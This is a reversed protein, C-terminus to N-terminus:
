FPWEEFDVELFVSQKLTGESTVIEFVLEGSVSYEDKPKGDTDNSKSWLTRSWKTRIETFMGPALRKLNTTLQFRKLEGKPSQVIEHPCHDDNQTIRWSRSAIVYVADLEPSRRKTNNKLKVELGFSGIHRWDTKELSGFAPGISLDIVSKKRKEVEGKIWEIKPSLKERLDSVTGDYIIHSHHKLDFPIDDASQTLLLCLKDRAHAYGVEYFVNPNRGTMDAVIFDCQEIQRYIRELIPESFHQEDVREAVVGLQEASHKIGLNYLDKFSGDFPM